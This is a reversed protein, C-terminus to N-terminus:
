KRDLFYPIQRVKHAGWGSEPWGEFHSQAYLGCLLFSIAYYYLRGIGM